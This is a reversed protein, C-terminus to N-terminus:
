NSLQQFLIVTKLALKKYASKIESETSDKTVGLIEYAEEIKM